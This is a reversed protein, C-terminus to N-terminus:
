GPERRWYGIACIAATKLGRERRWFKGCAQVMEIEGGAWAYCGGSPMAVDRIATLLASGDAYEVPGRHLWTTEVRAESEFPQEDQADAVEVIVRAHHSSPLGELIAGIAPIATEDGVLLQRTMGPAPNYGVRPGWLGIQQGPKAAKAWRSGFGTDGHLVFDIDIEGREPRSRRITYNRAVPRIDEPMAQYEVWTFGPEIVPRSQGPLPFLLTAFQDPFPTVFHTLEDGAMTVRTMRPTLPEVATVRAFVTRMPHRPRKPRTISAVATQTM